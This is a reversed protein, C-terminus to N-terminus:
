DCEAHGSETRQQNVAALSLHQEGLPGTFRGPREFTVEYLIEGNSGRGDTRLIIDGDVLTEFVQRFVPTGRIRRRTDRELRHGGDEGTSAIALGPRAVGLFTEGTGSSSGHHTVKLVESLFFDADFEGVLRNEYRCKADGAFLIRAGRFVLQLFVSTYVDSTPHAFFYADSLNSVAVSISDQGVPTDTVEGVANVRSWWQDHWSFNGSDLLKRNWSTSDNRYLPIPSWYAYSPDELLAPVAGAHDKHAHSVVLSDLELNNQALYGALLGGLQNNSGWGNGTGADVFWARRDPFVVLTAEGHGVHFMRVELFSGRFQQVRQANPNVTRVSDAGVMFFAM